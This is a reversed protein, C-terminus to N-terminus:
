NEVESFHIIRWQRSFFSFWRFISQFLDFVNGVDDVTVQLFIPLNSHNQHLYKSGVTYTFSNRFHTFVQNLRTISLPQSISVTYM